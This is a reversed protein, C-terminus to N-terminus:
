EGIKEKNDELAKFYKRILEEYDKSYGEKVAKLLEDRLKNRGEETSFLVDPPTERIVNQGTFSKRNKEFDKENISRQANLLKSLINEQKLILEDTLQETNLGTIIEQMDSVIKEFNGAIKKSQGSERAEKNLEALSKQILQQQQALRQLQGQQDPTLKGQAQLQKTLQNLQMQQGSLQQMQQMLSMMGGSGSGGQQMMQSMASQMQKAADNLNAMANGMNTNARVSNRDQLGTMSESMSQRAKGLAEAMEPTIAFTKQSMEGLRMMLRDLNRQMNQQQEALENFKQSSSTLGDTEQQLKEEEKSLKLIDSISKIMDKMVQVQNQQQMQQQMSQMQQQMQQMNKSIQQMKQMAQQMQQQQMDKQAEDSLEENQQEAMEDMMKQMDETPMDSLESMKEKLKEMEEALQKMQEKIAEQKKQLQEKQTNSLNENKLQESIEDQQKQIEEIRSIMEDTKQEVQIRKLLNLTREISKQFQEENAKMEEFSMQTDERQMQQMMDQMRKLADQMNEGTLEDMLKQLEMYKEMTEESLLNNEQMDKQMESLQESVEEVKEKLDKFKEMTAEIKQKEEWTIQKEDKKLENSIKELDKKLEEAEKLTEEMKKIANDQINDADNFLEDLSPVTIKYEKTRSAKPGSVNDNDFVEVFYTVEDQAGLNLDFLDWLYNIETEPPNKFFPLELQTYDTAPELFKSFSLRYNLVVKSFGFDDAIQLKLPLNNEMGLKVNKAPFLMEIFPYEDEIVKIEYKVPNKNSLGEIDTVSVYYNDHQTIRFSTSFSNGDPTIAKDGAENFKVSASTLKNTSTVDLMVRSGKLASINGNDEQTVKPLGSYAPPQITVNLSKVVPYNIVSINFTDSVVDDAKVFYGFSSNVSRFRNIFLGTSDGQIVKAEFNTQEISKTFFEINETLKGSVKVTVDFSAGKPVTRNGPIIELTFNPQVIYESDYNYLRLAANTLSGFSRTIIVLFIFIGVARYALKTISLLSVTKNFNKSDIKNYIRDFAANILEESGGIGNQVLQIANALEDKIDPYKKGIRLSISNYDPKFIIGTSLILPLIVAILLSLGFGFLTIFFLATRVESSFGIIYELLVLTFLYIGLFLFWKLFGKLAKLRYELAFFSNFRALVSNLKKNEPTMIM